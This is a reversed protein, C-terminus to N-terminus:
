RLAELVRRLQAETLGELRADLKVVPEKQLAGLVHGEPGEFDYVDNPLCHFAECLRALLPLKIAMRSEGLLGAAEGHSFGMQMLDHHLRKVGKQELLRRVNLRLRGGHIRRVVPEEELVNLAQQVLREVEKPDQERLLRDALSQVPGKNLGSLISDTGGRWVFVDNPTCLLGECLRQLLSDRVQKIEKPHWVTRAERASLGRGVLFTQPYDAGHMRVLREVNLELM